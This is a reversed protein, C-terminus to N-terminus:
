KDFKTAKLLEAFPNNIPEAEKEQQKLYKQVRLKDMKGSGEKKRSVANVHLLKDKEKVVNNM